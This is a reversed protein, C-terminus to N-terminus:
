DQLTAICWAQPDVGTGRESQTKVFNKKWQRDHQGIKARKVEMKSWRTLSPGLKAGVQGMKTGVQGLNAGEQGVEARVQGLKTGVQRLKPGLKACCPGLIHGLHAELPRKQRSWPINVKTDNKSGLNAQNKINVPLGFYGLVM